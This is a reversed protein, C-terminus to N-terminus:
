DNKVMLFPHLIQLLINTTFTADSKKREFNLEEMLSEVLHYSVGTNITEGAKAEKLCGLLWSSTLKQVAEESWNHLRAWRLSEAIFMRM